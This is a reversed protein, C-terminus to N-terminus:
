PRFRLETQIKSVKAVMAYDRVTKILLVVIIIEIIATAIEIM